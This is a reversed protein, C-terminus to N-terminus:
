SLVVGHFRRPSTSTYSWSNNVDASPPLSQDAQRGPRKVGTSLADSAWQLPPQNPVLAIDTLFLRMAGVPFQAV